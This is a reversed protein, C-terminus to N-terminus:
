QPCYVEDKFFYCGPINKVAKPGNMDTAKRKKGWEGKDGKDRAVEAHDDEERRQERAEEEEEEEERRQERAEEEEEEERRQERAEEEEEEERRQDRAEEEDDEDRRKDRAEEEDEEDRRQDRAEEEDDEDRRKDRADEDDDYSSSAVHTRHEAASIANPAAIANAVPATLALLGAVTASAFLTRAARM